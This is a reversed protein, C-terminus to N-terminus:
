FVNDDAESEFESIKNIMDQINFDLADEFEVVDLMNRCVHPYELDKHAILRMGDKIYLYSAYNFAGFFSGTAEFSKSGSTAVRPIGTDPEVVAHALFVVNIGVSVLTREIWSLFEDMALATDNSHSGYVNKTSLKIHDNVMKYLNTATDFAVTSPYTGKVEKYAKLKSLMSSKFSKIGKYEIAKDPLNNVVKGGVVSSFEKYGYINAHPMKLPFRKKTDAYFVFANELKSLAMSKGGGSQAILLYKAAM